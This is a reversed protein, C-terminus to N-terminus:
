GARGDIHTITALRLHNGPHSVQHADPDIDLSPHSNATNGRHHTVEITLEYSYEGAANLVTLEYTQTESPCLYRADDPLVGEGDLVVIEGNEVSWSLTSCAGAVIHEPDAGFEVVPPSPDPTATPAPCLEEFSILPPEVESGGFEGDGWAWGEVDGPQVTHGSVGRGSYVWENEQQDLHYYAWYDCTAGACECFCHEQPYDCGDRRIKCIAAGLGYSFDKVIPLGSADLVDEGTMGSGTYDICDTFVNGNSFKVVLGVRQAGQALAQDSYAGSILAVILLSCTTLLGLTTRKM